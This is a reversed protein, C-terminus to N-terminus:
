GAMSHMGLPLPGTGPGTFPSARETNNHALASLLERVDEGTLDYIYMHIDVYIYIYYIYM